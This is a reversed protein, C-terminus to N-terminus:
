VIHDRDNGAASIGVFPDYVAIMVVAPYIARVIRDAARCRQEFGRSRESRQPFLAPLGLAGDHQREPVAFFESQQPGGLPGLLMLILQSAFPEHVDIGIGVSLSRQASGSRMRKLQEGALNQTVELIWLVAFAQEFDCSGAAAPTFNGGGFFRLRGSKM